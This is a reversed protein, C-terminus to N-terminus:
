FNVFIFREDAVFYMICPFIMLFLLKSSGFLCYCAASPHFVVEDDDL